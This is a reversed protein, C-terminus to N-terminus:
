HFFIQLNSNSSRTKETNMLIHLVVSTKFDWVVAKFYMGSFINCPTEYLQDGCGLDIQAVDLTDTNM